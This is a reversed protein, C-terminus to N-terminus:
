KTREGLFLVVDLLLEPDSDAMGIIAANIINNGYELEQYHFNDITNLREVHNKRDINKFFKFAESFTPLESFLASFM